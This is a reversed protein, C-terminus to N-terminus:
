KEKILQLARKLFIRQREQNDAHFPICTLVLVIAMNKVLEININYKQLNYYIRNLIKEYDKGFFIELDKGNRYRNHLIFMYGVYWDHLIKAMDYNIDGATTEIDGWKGRPDIFVIKGISPEFIINGFHFDGHIYKSFNINKISNTGTDIIFKKTLNEDERNNFLDMKWYSEIRKLNKDIYMNYSQQIIERNINEYSDVLVNFYLYFIKDIILMWQDIKIKDYLWLESLNIGSEWSMKLSGYESELVKPILVERDGYINNYWNKEWEIKKSSNGIASKQVIGKDIDISITNFERSSRNVLRARSQYYTGLEGCDYWEDTKLLKFIDEKCYEELLSSIQKEGQIEPKNISLNICNDFLERNNFYYIGILAQNTNVRNQPKDYFNNDRDVLCWRSFDSVKSTVLFSEKFDMDQLCITDGLWVFINNEKNAELYGQYIADLPGKQNEQIKFKVSFSFSFGQLYEEIDKLDNQVIIVESIGELTELHELIYSIIPKGNVPILSKSSANSLPRMRTAKGACPIIVSINM